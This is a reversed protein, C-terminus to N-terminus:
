KFKSDHTVFFIWKEWFLWNLYHSGQSHALFCGYYSYSQIACIYKPQGKAHYLGIKLDCQHVPPRFNLIAPLLWHLKQKILRYWTEFFLYSWCNDVIKPRRSNNIAYINWLPLSDSRSRFHCKSLHINRQHCNLIDRFSFPVRLFM